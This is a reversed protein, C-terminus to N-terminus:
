SCEEKTSSDVNQAFPWTCYVAFMGFLYVTSNSTLTLWTYSILATTGELSQQYTAGHNVFYRPVNVIREDDFEEKLQQNDATQKFVTAHYRCSNVCINPNTWENPQKQFLNQHAVLLGVLLGGVQCLGWTDLFDMAVEAWAAPDLLKFCARVDFAVVTCYSWYTNNKFMSTITTGYHFNPLFVLPQAPLRHSHLFCIKM